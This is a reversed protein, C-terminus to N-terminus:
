TNKETEKVEEEFDDFGDFEDKQGKNVEAELKERNQYMKDMSQILSKLSNTNADKMITEGTLKNGKAVVKVTSVSQYESMVKSMTLNAPDIPLYNAIIDYNDNIINYDAFMGMWGAQLNGVMENNTGAIAKDLHANSNSVLIVDDKIVAFFQMPTATPDMMSQQGAFVYKDGDKTIKNGALALLGEMFAKDKLGLAFVMAPDNEQAAPPYVGVAMDGTIGDKIKGLDLGAMVLYQDVMKDLGRKTMFNLVGASNIGFTMSAALNDAPIYKSYDVALEDPFVDGLERVLIDSFDFDTGVDMKGKEFDYFFSMYNGKLGEEPIQAFGLGGRIQMATQPNKLMMDVIPDASMWFLMDKSEELHKAFNANSRINEGTPNLLEKVKADDNFTTFALIKDGQILFANSELATIIYGDKTETTADKAEKLAVTVAADMKAKDAVPLMLAFEIDKGTKMEEPLSFYFGLNGAMNIGAAEPDELFPVMEPSEKKAEQIFDKFFSTEKLSAYDAKELLQKTNMLFVGTADAPIANSIDASDTASATAGEGCSGLSFLITAAFLAALLKMTKLM